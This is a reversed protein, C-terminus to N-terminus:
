IKIAESVHRKVAESTEPQNGFARFWVISPDRRFWTRQRKAYQRTAAQTREVAETMSLAGDLFQLAERYGISQLAKSTRAYGMALIQEVEAVLGALFMEKCREDIRRALQDRPPDLGIQVVHFGQLPERNHDYLATIPRRTVLCVELARMLKNTDHAHIHQAAEPDFRTLLRHLSGPKRRALRARLDEDRTPGEFLGQLLARLYFGTGGVIVPVRGRSAIEHLTLRAVRQYDGATFLEDPNLIDILHHPIGRRQSVPTKATGIDMYRFVQVSDCNVIEGGLFEALDLALDSKGSGTPGVVAVATNM